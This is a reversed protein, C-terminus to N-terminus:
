GFLSEVFLCAVIGPYLWSLREVYYWVGQRSMFGPGLDIGGICVM